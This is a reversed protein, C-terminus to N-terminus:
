PAERAGKSDSPKGSRVEAVRKKMEDYSMAGPSFKDGIIVAPTGRVGLDEALKHNRDLEAKM